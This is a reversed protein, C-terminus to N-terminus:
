VREVAPKGYRADIADKQLRRLKGAIERLYPDGHSEFYRAVDTVYNPIATGNHDIVVGGAARDLGTVTVVHEGSKVSLQPSKRMLCLFAEECVELHRIKDELEARTRKRAM